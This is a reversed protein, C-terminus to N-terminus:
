GSLQSRVAGAARGGSARRAGRLAVARHAKVRGLAGLRGDGLEVLRVQVAAREGDEEVLKGLGAVAAGQGRDARAPKHPPPRAAPSQPLPLPAASAAAARSSGCPQCKPRTRPRRQRRGADEGVAVLRTAARRAKRAKRRRVHRAGLKPGGLSHRRCGAGLCCRGPQHRLPAPARPRKSESRGGRVARSRGGGGGGGRVARSRGGGGGAAGQGGRKGKQVGLVRGLGGRDRM